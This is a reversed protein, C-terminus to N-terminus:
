TRRRAASRRSRIHDGLEPVLERRTLWALRRPDGSAIGQARARETRETSLSHGWLDIAAAVVEEPSVGLASATKTELARGTDIYFDETLQDLGYRQAQRDHAKTRWRLAVSVGAQQRGHARSNVTSAPLVLGEVVIDEDEAQLLEDVGFRQVLLWFEGLRVNRPREPDELAAVDNQSWDLGVRRVEAALDDQSWDNESRLRYLNSRIVDQYTRTPM